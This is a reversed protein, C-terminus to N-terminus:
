RTVVTGESSNIQIIQFQVAGRALAEDIHDVVEERLAQTWEAHPPLVFVVQITGETLFLASLVHRHAPMKAVVGEAETAISQAPSEFPDPAAPETIAEPKGHVYEYLKVTGLTGFTFALAIGFTFGGAMKLADRHTM